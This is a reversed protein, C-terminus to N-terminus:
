YEYNKVKQLEEKVGNNYYNEFPHNGFLDTIPNKDVEYNADKNVFGNAVPDHPNNTQKIFTAGVKSDSAQLKTASEPSAVSYHLYPTQAGVLYNAQNAKDIDPNGASHTIVLTNPSLRQLMEGTLVDKTTLSNPIWEVVDGVVGFTKDTQNNILGVNNFDKSLINKQINEADKADNNMGTVMVIKTDKNISDYNMDTSQRLIEFDDKNDLYYVNEFKNTDQQDIYKIEDKRYSNYMMQTFVEKDTLDIVKKDNVGDTAVVKNNFIYIANDGVAKDLGAFESNNQQLQIYELASQPQTYNNTTALSTDTYDSLGFLTYDLLKDGMLNAYNETTTSDMHMIEHGATKIGDSTSLINKDNLYITGSNYHGKIQENDKGAIDTSVLVTDPNNYGLETAVANIVEKYM